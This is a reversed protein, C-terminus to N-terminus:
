DASELERVFQEASFQMGGEERERLWWYIFGPVLPDSSRRVFLADQFQMSVLNLEETELKGKHMRELTHEFKDYLGRLDKIARFQAIIESLGWSIIPLAPMAVYLLIEEVSSSARLGAGAVLIAAILGLGMLGFLYDKRQKFNWYCNARQCVIRAQPLPLEAVAVPYWNKLERDDAKSINDAYSKIEEAPVDSGVLFRNPAFDLVAEDFKNQVIAAKERYTDSVSRMAKGVGLVVISAFAYWVEFGTFFVSILSLSVILPVSVSFDATSYRKALTYLHRQAKLLRLSEESNQRDTIGNMQLSNAHSM